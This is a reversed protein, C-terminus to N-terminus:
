FTTFRPTKKKLHRHQSLWAIGVVTVKQTMPRNIPLCHTSSVCLDFLTILNGWSRHRNLNDRRSRQRIGDALRGKTTKRGTQAVRWVYGIPWIRKNRTIRLGQKNTCSVRRDVTNLAWGLKSEPLEKNLRIHRWMQIRVLCITDSHLSTHYANHIPQDSIGRWGDRTRSDDHIM